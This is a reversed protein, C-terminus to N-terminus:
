YFCGGGELYFFTTLGSQTLCSCFQGDAECVTAPNSPQTPQPANVGICLNCDGPSGGGGGASSATVSQGNLLVTVQWFTREVTAPATWSISASLVDVTGTFSGTVMLPGSFSADYMSEGFDTVVLFLTASITVGGASCATLTGQLMILDVELTGGGPCQISSIHSSKDTSSSLESPALDSALATFAEILDPVIAEFLRQVDAQSRIEGGGPDGPESPDSGCAAAALLLGCISLLSFSRM